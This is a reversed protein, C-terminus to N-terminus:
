ATRQLASCRVSFKPMPLFCAIHRLFIVQTSNIKNNPFYRSFQWAGDPSCILLEWKKKGRSDLIPRSSFDLEWIESQPPGTSTQVTSDAESPAAETIAVAESTRDTETAALVPRGISKCSILHLNNHHTQSPFLYCSQRMHSVHPPCSTNGFAARSSLYIRNNSYLAEMSGQDTFPFTRHKQSVRM